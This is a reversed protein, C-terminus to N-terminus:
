KYQRDDEWMESNRQKKFSNQPRSLDSLPQLYKSASIVLRPEIGWGAVYLQIADKPTASSGPPLLETTLLKGLM